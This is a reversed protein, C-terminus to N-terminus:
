DDPNGGPPQRPPPCIMFGAEELTLTCMLISREFTETKKPREPRKLCLYQLCLHKRCRQNQLIFTKQILLCLRQYCNSQSLSMDASKWQDVLSWGEHCWRKGSKWRWSTIKGSSEPTEGWTTKVLLYVQILLCVPWFCQTTQREWATLFSEAVELSHTNSILVWSRNFLIWSFLGTSEFSRYCSPWDFCNGRGGWFEEVFGTGSGSDGGAAGQSNEELAM